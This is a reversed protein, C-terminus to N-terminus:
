RRMCAPNSSRWGSRQQSCSTSPWVACAQGGRWSLWYSCHSRRLRALGVVPRRHLLGRHGRHHGSRRGRCPDAHVGPAGQPARRGVLGLVGLAFAIDTAIPIAWGAYTATVWRTSPWTRGRRGIMTGFAAAAPVLASRRERLSGFLMERKVELAVVFFFIAMLVDNVWHRLSEDLHLPGVNLSLHSGWFSDYSGSLNAWVLAAIAAGILLFASSSEWRIFRELPRVLTRRAIAHGSVGSM